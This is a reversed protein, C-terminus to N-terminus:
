SVAFAEAPIKGLANLQNFIEIAKELDGNTEELCQTSFKRNMGTRMSLLTIMEETRADGGGSTGHLASSSGMNMRSTSPQANIEAMSSDRGNIKSQAGIGRNRWESIQKVTANTLLLMDNIIVFGGGQPVIIFSRCFARTAPPTRSLERYVGNVVVQIFNPGCLPIDVQFSEPEHITKPLNCLTAVINLKGQKLLKVEHSTDKIKTLNRSDKILQDTFM